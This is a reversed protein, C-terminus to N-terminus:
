GPSVPPRLAAALEDPGPAPTRFLSHLQLGDALTALHRADAEPVHCALQRYLVDSAENGLARFDGDRLGLLYLEYAVVTIARGTTIQTHVLEALREHITPATVTRGWSTLSAERLEIIGRAAELLLARVSDFHYSVSGVPVGARTAVARASIASVGDDQLLGVTAELIRARRDPDNPTNKSRAV